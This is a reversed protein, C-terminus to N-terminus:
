IQFTQGEAMPDGYSSDLRYRPSKGQYPRGDIHSNGVEGYYLAM